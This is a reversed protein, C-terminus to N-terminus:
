GKRRAIFLHSFLGAPRETLEWNGDKPWLASLERGTFGARVSIRADHCTVANCGILSLWQTWFLPWASRRPEVAILADARKAAASFLTSLQADTFHHLVLNGLIADTKEATTVNLWQFIDAEVSSAAWNLAAFDAKTKETLLNQLDVFLVEVRRYKGAEIADGERDGRGQGQPLPHFKAANEPRASVRSEISRLSNTSDASALRRAVRLLLQGDGAGIELIRSPLKGPFIKQLSRTLIGAHDMLSNLRRLDRRSHIAAPDSAPLDDLLEAQLTRIVDALRWCRAM